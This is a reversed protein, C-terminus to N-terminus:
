YYTFAPSFFFICAQFPQHTINQYLIRLTKLKPRGLLPLSTGHVCSAIGMALSHFFPNCVRVVSMIWVVSEANHMIPLLRKSNNRKKRSNGFEIEDVSCMFANADGLM